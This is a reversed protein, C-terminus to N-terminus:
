RPPAKEASTGWSKLWPRVTKDEVLNGADADAVGEAVAELYEQQQRIVEFAAPSLVVAVPKGNQTIVIPEDRQGLKRLYRAAQSKFEGLPVIGESVNVERLPSRNKLKM